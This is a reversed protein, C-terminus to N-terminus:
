KIIITLLIPIKFHSQMTATSTYSIVDLALLSLFSQSWLFQLFSSIVSVINWLRIRPRLLFVKEWYPSDEPHIQFNWILFAKKTINPFHLYIKCTLCSIKPARISQSIHMPETQVCLPNQTHLFLQGWKRQGGFMIRVVRLAILAQMHMWLLRKMLHLCQSTM